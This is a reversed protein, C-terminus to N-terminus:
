RPRERELGLWGALADIRADVADGIEPEWPHDEHIAHVRLVGAKRDAKADLKGVLRDAYVIPLAFYGWRRKAAPKYMELVYEFDFLDLARDRDYVLRDFPSLFTCRGEFPEESAVLADPDVQWTGSVGDVQVQEGLDGIPSPEGPSRLPKARSIGLSALRRQDRLRRAEAPPPRFLDAPHVREALDWRRSRGERGAIAVEGTLCLAELMRNANKDDNWGTSEYPVEPDNPLAAAVVPGEERLHDLVRRRYRANAEIWARTSPHVWEDAVSLHIGIDDMTRIFTVHETLSRETELAFVLDSPDYAEGLRSWAVLDPSRIIATTPDIQLLTLHDVMAVLSEPHWADLLQARVAIQRAQQRDLTLM